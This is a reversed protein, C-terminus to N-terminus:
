HWQHYLFLPDNDSSLYKPVCKTSIATNFMRCLGAGDVDGAHVGFGIIRRTFQDMVVLVWHTNLLISECRFLDISWLSDKAHGIFTLWLPGNGDPIPRYHKALVRRVLDKNIDVGFAKNIQQAIRLCGFRPNRQKLEIIAQILESSPGKPGPKGKRVSSYLLRYKRKKLLDHFKLLTSPRIIVAARQIRRPDLFLSCFGFLFRDLASLNPARRRSRNIVLLQQKMILSDAVVTRAGGPGLLKAITTLLHALLLLLDKM